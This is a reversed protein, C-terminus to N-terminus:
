RLGGFMAFVLAASTVLWVGGLIWASAQSQSREIAHGTDWILHRIGALLHYVFAAAVVALIVRGLPHGFASRVAEHREGGAAASMLWIVLLPLAASLAAGTVRNAISTTLTYRFRYISLHPSLPRQRM